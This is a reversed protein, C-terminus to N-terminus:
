EFFSGVKFCFAFHGWSTLNRHAHASFPLIVPTLKASADCDEGPDLVCQAGKWRPVCLPPRTRRGVHPDTGAPWLSIIPRRVSAACLAGQKGVALADVPICYPAAPLTWNVAYRKISFRWIGFFGGGAKQCKPPFEPVNSASKAPM